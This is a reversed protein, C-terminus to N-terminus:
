RGSAGPPKATEGTLRLRYTGPNLRGAEAMVASPIRVSGLWVTGEPIKIDEASRALPAGKQQAQAATPVMIAVAAIALWRKM